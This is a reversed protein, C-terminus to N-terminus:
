RGALALVQARSASRTPKPPPEDQNRTPLVHLRRIDGAIFRGTLSGERRLRVCVEAVVVVEGAAMTFDDPLSADGNEAGFSGCAAAIEMTTDEDGLPITDVWLVQAPDGSGPQAIASIVYVLDAPVGLEQEYLFRGLATIQDGYEGVPETERSVYEAMTAAMRAGATDAEVRSYLDFGLVAIALLMVAGIALEVTAGGRTDHAFARASSTRSACVRAAAATMAPPPSSPAM